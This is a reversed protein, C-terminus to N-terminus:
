RGVLVIVAAGLFSLAAVWLVTLVIWLLANDTKM